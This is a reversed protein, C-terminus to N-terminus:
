FLNGLIKPNLPTENIQLQLLGNGRKPTKHQKERSYDM